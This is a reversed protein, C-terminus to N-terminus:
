APAGVLKSVIDLYDGKKTAWNNHEIFALANAARAAGVARNQYAEVIAVALADIDSSKFFRLLEENFYYRDIRTSAALVPVGLAMFELIKTSFAEDGFSDARKPIVGLDANAMISAIERLPLPDKLKVKGELKLEEVLLRLETKSSGEGYIHFEMDPAQKVAIAFANVAIDLGQHWNLTGPYSIIFRGDDARNRLGPHFLGPDPYNIFSTCKDRRTSREVLRQLWIDNAAIVHDSFWSSLREVLKLGRFVVSRPSVGFKAAYFEPVIDHIDLIIKAGGLKPIVAAFVEFDPVSHVHVLDYSTRFNEATLEWMSRFFFRVIRLFYSLKGRENKERTQVRLVRVGQIHEVRPQGPRGLVIADVQAGSQALAQAYRMVRGDTEYFTYALMCARLPRTTASDDIASTKAM